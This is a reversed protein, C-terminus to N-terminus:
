QDLLGSKTILRASIEKAQDGIEKRKLSDTWVFEIERNWKALQRQIDVLEAATWIDYEVAIWEIFYKSEEILSIVAVKGGEHVSFSGVRALNAALGGMRVQLTDKLYRKKREDINKM